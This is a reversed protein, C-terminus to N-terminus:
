KPDQRNQKAPGWGPNAEGVYGWIELVMKQPMQRLVVEIQAVSANDPLIPDGGEEVPKDGIPINTGGFTLAIERHAVELETPVLDLRTGDPQYVVRKHIMFKSMELEMGADAPKIKWWWQPEKEFNRVVADVIAYNGFDM